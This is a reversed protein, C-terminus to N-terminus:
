ARARGKLVAEPSKSCGWCPEKEGEHECAPSDKRLVIRWLAEARSWVSKDDRPIVLAAWQGAKDGWNSLCYYILIGYPAEPIQTLYYRLQLLHSPLPSNIFKDYAYTTKLEVPIMPGKPKLRIVFDVRGSVHAEEAYFSVEEAVLLAGLQKAVLGEVAHGLAGRTESFNDDPRLEPYHWNFWVARACDGLQSAYIHDRPRNGRAFPLSRRRDAIRKLPILHFPQPPRSGGEPKSPL